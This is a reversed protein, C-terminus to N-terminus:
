HQLHCCHSMRHSLYKVGVLHLHHHFVKRHLYPVAQQAVNMKLLNTMKMVVATFDAGITEKVIITVVLTIYVSLSIHVFTCQLSEM